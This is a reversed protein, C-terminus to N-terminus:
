HSPPASPPHSPSRRTGGPAPAPSFGRAPGPPPPVPPWPPPLLGQQGATGPIPEGAPANAQWAAFLPVEGSGDLVVVGFPRDFALRVTRQPRPAGGPRALVVTVAAAEVGLEAVKIVTEQVVKSIALPEPSLGSFDADPSTARLVGFAPLQPTVDVTTRLELRPLALSVVDADLPGCAHLPAWAAPLVEAPGAGPAGLVFRVRAPAGSGPEAACCLEVVTATGVTWAESRSLQRHMTPVQHVTGAADTFPALRTLHSAFPTGWRAKLALANVLALLTDDQITVPLKEIQGGTAEKVWADIEDPDLQGFGVDPLAERYARYVPVRSWVRTAVAVADTGAIARAAGTVAGAAEEGSVGLLARLEAATGGRAGAAVAGLALWLGAPSCVFDEDEGDGLLRFWREGLERM